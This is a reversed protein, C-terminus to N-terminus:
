EGKMDHIFRQAREKTKFRAHLKGDNFVEIPLEHESGYNIIFEGTYFKPHTYLVKKSRTEIIRIICHDLIAPGGHSAATPILLPVKVPGMSRGITGKVDWEENWSRGTHVDGLFIRIRTNSKRVDELVDIVAQPTDQHYSTGNVVNYTHTDSM